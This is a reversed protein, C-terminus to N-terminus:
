MNNNSQEVALVGRTYPHEWCHPCQRQSDKEYSIAADLRSHSFRTRQLEVNGLRKRSRSSTKIWVSSLFFQMMSYICSLQSTTQWSVELPRNPLKSFGAGAFWSFTDNFPISLNAPAYSSNYEHDGPFMWYKIMERICREEKKSAIMYELPTWHILM